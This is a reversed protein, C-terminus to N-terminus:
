LVSDVVRKGEPLYYSLQLHLEQPRTQVISKTIRAFLQHV